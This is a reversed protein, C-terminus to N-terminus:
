EFAEAGSLQAFEEDTMDLIETCIYETHEGLLPAPTHLKAPSKSLKFPLGDYACEGMVPHNLKTFYGHHKIQPDNHVEGPKLVVGAPVGAKQMVEMVEQARCNITWEEVLRNLEDENRKRDPLTAFKPDETWAPSGLVQCFGDWEKDSFVGIACWEDDGRCRYIGHPAMCDSRNGDRKPVRKNVSHDLVIPALMQLSAELQSVDLYQAKGTRQRYLLAAILANAAFRACIFDTYAFFPPVPTRDPWGTLQTFGAGAVLHFGYGKARARPGSRGESSTSLIILDPNVKKLEELGLGRKGLSGTVWGECVIDAWAILRKAVGVGHPSDLNLTISYKNANLIAFQGARDVDVVNDKFPPITRLPDPSRRSEVRVVTAGFNGLYLAALPGVGSLGFDVVKIGQFVQKM